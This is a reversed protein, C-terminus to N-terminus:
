AGYALFRTNTEAVEKDTVPALLSAGFLEGSSGVGGFFGKWSGASNFDDISLFINFRRQILINLSEHHM